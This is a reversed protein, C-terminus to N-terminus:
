YGELVKRVRLLYDLMSQEFISRDQNKLYVINKQTEDLVAARWCENFGHRRPCPDPREDDPHCTCSRADAVAGYNSM